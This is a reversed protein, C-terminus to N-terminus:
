CRECINRDLCDDSIQKYNFRIGFDVAVMVAEKVLQIEGQLTEDKFIEERDLQISEFFVAIDSYKKKDAAALTDFDTSLIDNILVHSLKEIDAYLVYAVLRLPADGQIEACSTSRSDPADLPIEGRYRIYFFNNKSDQLGVYQGENNEYIIVKGEDNQRAGAYGKVFTKPNNTLINTKILELIPQLM